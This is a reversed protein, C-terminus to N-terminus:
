TANPITGGNEVLQWYLREIDSLLRQLSFRTAVSARANRGMAQRRAADDCLAAVSQALAAADGFPVLSGLTADIIVDRVGGVDTSVSATGSAMAEILAVPTGENRSTLVFVDTAAYVIDLDGRWGLFRMRPGIGLQEAQRELSPRLEGDGVVVFVADPRKASIAAAMTVFSAQEKIATLRGVTTIVIASRDVGLVDRAGPRADPTLALFPELDFGLPILQVQNDSAIHYTELVDHRIRESIAIIADTHRALLREVALFVKTRRTSFYGEFVHGHYTHVIRAKHRRGCTANYLIGALRGVAGAKATHTHILGPKWRCFERYTRWCAIVDLAPSVPRVLTSVNIARGRTLPMIAMMNGEGEALQGHLLLSEFRGATLERTLSIAQIAPGGINLRTIVRAIRLPPTM